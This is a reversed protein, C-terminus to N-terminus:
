KVLRDFEAYAESESNHISLVQSYWMVYYAQAVFSYFVFVGKVMEKVVM